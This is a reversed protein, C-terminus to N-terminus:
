NVLREDLPPRTDVAVLETFGRHIEGSDVARAAVTVDFRIVLSPVIYRQIKGVTDLLEAPNVSCEGLVSLDERSLVTLALMLVPESHLRLDEPDQIRCQLLDPVRDPDVLGYRHRAHLRESEWLRTASAMESPSANNAAVFRFRPRLGQVVQTVAFFEEASGRHGALARRVSSADEIAIAVVVIGVDAQGPPAELM